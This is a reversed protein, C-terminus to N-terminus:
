SSIEYQQEDNQKQKEQQQETPAVEKEAAYAGPPRQTNV